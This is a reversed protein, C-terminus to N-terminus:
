RARLQGTYNPDAEGLQDFPLGVQGSLTTSCSPSTTLSSASDGNVFGSYSPTVPAPGGYTMSSSSATIVLEAPGM